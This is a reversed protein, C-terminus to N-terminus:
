YKQQSINNCYIYINSTIHETLKNSINCYIYDDVMVLSGPSVSLQKTNIMEIKNKLM